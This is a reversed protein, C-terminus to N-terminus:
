AEGEAPAHAPSHAPATEGRPIPSRRWLAGPRERHAYWGVPVPGIDALSPDLEYMAALTSGSVLAPVGDPFFAWTRGREDDPWARLAKGALIDPTTACSTQPPDDFPWAHPNM